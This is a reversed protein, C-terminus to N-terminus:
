EGKYQPKRKEKFAALGELRDKTPICVEYAKAELDIGTNLDVETGYNIAFKAQQVAIPGNDNILKAMQMAGDLLAEPQFVSNVLGMSLAEEAKLRRGTFILEKAKGKGLLRALRQTGGAGPIIGLTVETLGMVAKSSAVRIDCALALETGGGLAIGNIAAIVPIRLNELASFTNRITYLFDKVEYPTMTAREKLDAGASFAREGAGTIVVTRVRTDFHLKRVVEALEKLMPFNLANMQEPRNITVLCTYGQYEILLDGSM